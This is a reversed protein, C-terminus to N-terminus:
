RCWNTCTNLKFANTKM